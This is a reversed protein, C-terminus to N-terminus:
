SITHIERSSRRMHVDDIPYAVHESSLQKACAVSRKEWSQAPRLMTLHRWMGESEIDALTNNRSTAPM